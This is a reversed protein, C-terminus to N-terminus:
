RLEIAAPAKCVLLPLLVNGALALKVTLAAAMTDGVRAFDKLGDVMADPDTEFSVMVNFLGLLVAALSVAGRVSVSGPPMIIAAPVGVVVQPPVTDAVMPPEDTVNVPPEIGILPEQVTVTLTASFTQMQLPLTFVMGAPASFVLLPLLVAGAEAVKATVDTGEVGVSLLDKLGDVMASPPTDASVMVKFFGLLVTALSVAGKTSVNGVPRNTEPLALVVHPPDTVATVPLEFIVRVPPDIGALPEQVTFTFTVSLL